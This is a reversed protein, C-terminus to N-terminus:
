SFPANVPVPSTWEPSFIVLAPDGYINQITTVQMSSSGYMSATDSTNTYDRYHLWVQHSFAVGISVGHVLVDQFFLDDALDAEPCLGTGGNGYWCLAGHDLYVMPGDGDATTCSMYFVASAHLNGMLQDIWKYHVIDYLQPPEPNYWVQGNDRALKWNDDAYGRWADWWIQDPWNCNATQEYQFGAGSGGTGHGSYYLVSTGNNIQQIHASWFCHGIYTRFHSSFTEKVTRSAYASASKGDNTKWSGGDPYNLLQSTTINRNPDAFILAPYLIDRVVIDNTYAPTNGPIQGAYSNNGMLASHMDMCIDNRPAVICYGEQGPLDLGLGKVYAQIDTIM